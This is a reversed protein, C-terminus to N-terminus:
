VDAPLTVRFIELPTEVNKLEQAPLKEVEIPIKNRVQDFVQGTLCIGGAAALPEIRSAVNVADGVLDTGEALVDGLHLGIRLQIRSEAPRSLNQRRLETQVAVACRVSEVASPFEVLFGDGLSKVERGGYAAFLPRLIAQHEARLRLAASESRQALRTFGVLDTFMIAALRRTFPAATPAGPSAVSSSSSEDFRVGGSPDEALLHWQSDFSQGHFTKVRLRQRIKGDIEAAQLELIADCMSEFQRYFRETAFGVALANVLIGERARYLPIIRTRWYDIVEDETNYRALVSLNDDIHFRHREAEPIGTTVQQGAAVAWDAIKVSQTKFADSGKPIEAIGLGTQVTYSDIIRLVDAERLPGLELGLRALAKTVEGPNRQFLHLDTPHQKRIAQAALTLAVEFWLSQPEFEVLVISPFPIGGPILRELLPLSLAERM